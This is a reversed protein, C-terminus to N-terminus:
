LVVVYSYVVADLMGSLECMDWSMNPMCTMRFILLSCPAGRAFGGIKVNKGFFAHELNVNRM